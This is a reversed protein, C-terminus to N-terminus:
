EDRTLGLGLIPLTRNQLTPGLDFMVFGPAGLERLSGVQAIVQDPKLQSDGATVGLGPVIRSKAGPFSLHRATETKFNSLDETYTMPCVFDVYGHKLWEVWDQGVSDRCSPYARFVAASLKITPNIGRLENRVRWVFDSIQKARWTRFTDALSGGDHVGRPWNRVPYGINKEFAKKTAPSYCFDQSPYRIYDLHIGDIDYRAAMERIVALELEVNAPVAPDLWEKTTGSSSRQLRGERRMRQRFEAPANEINWCVKWVHVELGAKKAARVCQDLQDGFDTCTRSAPIHKSPYHAKGGWALNPLIASMGFSSLELCTKEWSRRDGPYFGMGDHDWVGRFEGARAQQAIGNARQMRDMLEQGLRVADPYRKEAFSAAQSRHLNRADQLLPEISSRTNGSLKNEMFDMTEALNAHPEIVGATRLSHRAAAIWTEPHLSGIMGLMMDAKLQPDEGRIVHCIWFGAPTQLVAPDDLRKGSGNEWYAIIQSQVSLPYAPVLSWAIDHVRDPLHLRRPHSFRISRWTGAQTATKISRLGVKMLTALSSNAGQCVIMKGGRKVFSELARIEAQPPNPNYPLIAIRAHGLAGRAVADDDVSGYPINHLDLFSGIRQAAKAAVPREGAGTASTTAAVVLIEDVRSAFNFLDFTATRNTGKWPAFRIGEVRNWGAPNGEESFGNKPLVVTQRNVGRIPQSWHYWGDGSKFYVSLTRCAEPSSAQLTLEFSSVSSLDRRLPVDWYFRDVKAHFPCPLRIGGPVQEVKKAGPGANWARAAAASGDLTVLPANSGFAPVALLAVLVVMLHCTFTNPTVLSSHRFVWHRFFNSHRIGFSIRGKM